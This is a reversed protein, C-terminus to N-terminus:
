NLSIIVLEIEPFQSPISVDVEGSITKLTKPYYGNRSKPNSSKEHKEYGLHEELEGNLATEVVTKTLNRLLEEIQEKGSLEGVLERILEQAKNNSKHNSMKYRWEENTFILIPSKFV